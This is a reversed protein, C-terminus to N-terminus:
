PLSITQNLNLPAGAMKPRSAVAPKAEGIKLAAAQPWFPSLIELEISM